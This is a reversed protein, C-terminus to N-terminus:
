IEQIIGFDNEYYVTDETTTAVLVALKSKHKLKLKKGTELDLVDLENYKAHVRLIKYKEVIGVVPKLAEDISIGKALMAKIEQTSPSINKEISIIPLYKDVSKALSTIVKNKNIDPKLMITFTSNKIDVIIKNHTRKIKVSLPLKTCYNYLSKEFRRIENVNEFNCKTEIM